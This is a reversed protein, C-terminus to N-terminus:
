KKWRVFSLCTFANVFQESLTQTTNTKQKGNHLNVKFFFGGLCIWENLDTNNTWYQLYLPNPWICHYWGRCQHLETKRISVKLSIYPVLNNTRLGVQSEYRSGQLLLECWDSQSRMEVLSHFSPFSSAPAFWWTKAVDCATAGHQHCSPM